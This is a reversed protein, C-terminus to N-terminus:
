KATTKQSAPLNRVASQLGPVGFLAASTISSPRKAPASLSPIKSLTLRWDLCRHHMPDDTRKFSNAHRVEEVALVDVRCKRELAIIWVGAIDGPGIKVGPGVAVVLTDLDFSRNM